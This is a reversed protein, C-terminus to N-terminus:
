LDSDLDLFGLRRDALVHLAKALDEPEIRKIEGILALDDRDHRWLLRSAASAAM